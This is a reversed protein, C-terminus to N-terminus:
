LTMRFGFYTQLLSYVYLTIPTIFLFSPLSQFLITYSNITKTLKENKQIKKRKEKKIINKMYHCVITTLKSSLRTIGLM